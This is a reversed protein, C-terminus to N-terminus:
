AGDDEEIQLPQRPRAPLRLDARRAKFFIEALRNNQADVQAQAGSHPNKAALQDYYKKLRENNQDFAKLFFVTLFCGVGLVAWSLARTQARTRNPFFRYNPRAPDERRYRDFGM